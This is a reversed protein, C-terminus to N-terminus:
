LQFSGQQGPLVTNSSCTACEYSVRLSLICVTQKYTLMHKTISTLTHIYQFM